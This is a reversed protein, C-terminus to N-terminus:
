IPLAEKKFQEKVEPRTFFYLPIVELIVFVFAAAIWAYNGAHKKGDFIFFYPVAILSIIGLLIISKRAIESLKLLYIGAVLYAMDALLSFLSFLFGYDQILRRTAKVDFTTLISLISVIIFFWGFFTVGRSRKNRM